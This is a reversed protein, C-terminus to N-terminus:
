HLSFQMVAHRLMAFSTFVIKNNRCMSCMSCPLVAFFSYIQADVSQTPYHLSSPISITICTICLRPSSFANVANAANLFRCIPLSREHITNPPTPQSATKFPNTPSATDCFTAASQPECEYCLHARTCVYNPMVKLSRNLSPQQHKTTSDSESDSEPIVETFTPPPCLIIVCLKHPVHSSQHCIILMNITSALRTRKARTQIVDCWSDRLRTCRVTSSRKTSIVSVHPKTFLEIGRDPLHNCENPKYKQSFTPGNVHINYDMIM